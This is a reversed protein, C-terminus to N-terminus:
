RQIGKEVLAGGDYKVCTTSLFCRTRRSVVAVGMENLFSLYHCHARYITANNPWRCVLHNIERMMIIIMMM